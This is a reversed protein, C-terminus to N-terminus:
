MPEWKGGRRVMRTKGDESIITRGELPDAAAAAPAATAAPAAGAPPPTEVKIPSGGMATLRGESAKLHAAVKRQLTDLAKKKTEIDASKDNLTNIAFMMDRDSSAGKLKSLVDLVQPSVIQNYRQTDKTKEDDTGLIGSSVYKGATEKFEAGGGSYVTGKALLDSAEKLSEVQSQLEIHADQQENLIKQEGAPKANLKAARSDFEDQTIEGRTLARKLNVLPDDTPREQLRKEQSAAYAEDTQAKTAAAEKAAAIQAAQQRRSAIEAMYTRGIEPDRMTIQALQQPNPNEGAQGMVNALDQRGAATAQDARRTALADAATNFVHSAGQWPSPMSTPVEQKAQAAALAQARAELAKISMARSPDSSGLTTSAFIAM